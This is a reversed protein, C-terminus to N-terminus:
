DNVPQPPLVDRQTEEKMSSSIPWTNQLAELTRQAQDMLARTRLVMDPMQEVQGNLTNVTMTLQTALERSQRILEPLESTAMQTNDLVPGLDHLRQSTLQLASLTAELSAALDASFKEDALLRGVAGDGARMRTTIDRLNATTVALDELTRTVNEPEIGAGIGGLKEAAAVLNEMAPTVRAIMEDLSVSEKVRISGGDPIEPLDPNGASIELVANGLVSLKNLAAESDTRILPHFQERIRLTVVIRNDEGLDIASVQGVEVGSIRVATDTGVGQANKMRAHLTFKEAFLFSSQRNFALAAVLFLLALIVFLGAM